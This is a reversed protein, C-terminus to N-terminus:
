TADRLASTQASVHLVRTSQAQTGSAGARAGVAQQATGGTGYAWVYLIGPEWPKDWGRTYIQHSNNNEAPINTSPDSVEATQKCVRPGALREDM